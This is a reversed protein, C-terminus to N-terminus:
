TPESGKGIIIKVHWVCLSQTIHALTQNVVHNYKHYKFFTMKQNHSYEHCQTQRIHQICVGHASTGRMGELTILATLSTSLHHPRPASASLSKMGRDFCSSIMRLKGSSISCFLCAIDYQILVSGRALQLLSMVASPPSSVLTASEILDLASGRVPITVFQM